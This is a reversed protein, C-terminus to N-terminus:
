VVQCDQKERSLHECYVRNQRVALGAFAAQCDPRMDTGGCRRGDGAQRAPKGPTGRYLVTHQVPRRM